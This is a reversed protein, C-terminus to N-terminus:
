RMANAMLAAWQEPHASGGPNADFYEWADVGAFGPYAQALQTVTNAVTNVDVYGTGNAPNTLMGAVIKKPSFGASTVSDYNATTALSGLMSYFQTNYWAVKAGEPSQELQRYDFGSLNKGGVLASAVPALTIVFSPGFDASLQDILQQVQALAVPEEIDLDIGDFKYTTLTQKVAPYFTNWDAFLANAYSGKGAGGLMLRVTVGRSQLMATEQWLTTFMPDSPANNNLHILTSDSMMGLHFAAIMVDTVYPKNTNPDLTNWLPALSVYTGQDYQTQDYYIVRKGAPGGGDPSGGL